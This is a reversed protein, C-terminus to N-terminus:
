CCCDPLSSTNANWPRQQVRVVCRQLNAARLVLLVDGIALLCRREAVSGKVQDVGRLTAPREHSFVTHGSVHLAERAAPGWLMARM